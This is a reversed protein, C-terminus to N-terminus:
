FALATSKSLVFRATETQRGLFKLDFGVSENVEYRLARFLNMHKVEEAAFNTLADFAERDDIARASALDTVKPAVFGEVYAFLHAYAAMEVHTLKRREDADLSAIRDVGSLSAPLWSKSRDFPEGALVDAIKWNVKYANELCKAFSYTVM